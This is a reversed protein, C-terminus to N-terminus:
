ETAEWNFQNFDFQEMSTIVYIPKANYQALADDISMRADPVFVAPIGAANAAAIGLPSDEFVLVNEPKIGDFMNLAKLFLDPAPKGHEVEDGTVIHHMMKVVEPHGSSKINFGPRNSATAISMLIKRKKLETLLDFVGPLLPIKPWYADVFATRKELYEEAPMDLGYHEVTLRCAEIPTKGMMHIKFDWDLEIGLVEKQAISYVNETDMLTGDNDFIIAKIPQDWAKSM